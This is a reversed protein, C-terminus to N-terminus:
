HLAPRRSAAFMALAAGAVLCICIVLILVPMSVGHNITTHAFTVPGSGPAVTTATPDM